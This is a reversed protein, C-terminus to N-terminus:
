ALFNTSLCFHQCYTAVREIAWNAANAMSESYGAKLAAQKKNLKEAFRYYFYLKVREIEQIKRQKKEGPKSEKKISM